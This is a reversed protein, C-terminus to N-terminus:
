WSDIKPFTEACANGGDDPEASQFGETDFGRRHTSVRAIEEYGTLLFHADWRFFDMKVITTQSEWDRFRRGSDRLECAPSYSEMEFDHKWFEVSAFRKEKAVGRIDVPLVNSILSSQAETL